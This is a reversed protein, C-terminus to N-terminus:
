SLHRYTPCWRREIVYKTIVTPRVLVIDEVVRTRTTGIGTFPTGCDPCTDGAEITQTHDIRTPRRRSTGVHGAARGRPKAPSTDDSRTRATFPKHLLDVLQQRTQQREAEVAALQAQTDALLGRLQVQSAQLDALLGRLQDREARVTDLEVRVATLEAQLRAVTDASAPPAPLPDTTARSRMRSMSGSQAIVIHQLFSLTENSHRPTAVM